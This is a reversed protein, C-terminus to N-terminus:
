IPRWAVYSYGEHYISGFELRRTELIEIRKKAELERLLTLFGDLYGRERHFRLALYDVLNNDDYLEALPEMNVCIAPRQDLLYQVFSDHRAGVQELACMTLVGAERELKLQPDPAFFDFHRGSINLGLKSRFMAVMEYSSKSWDLGCLKKGPFQNALAILNFGSGCGFEYVSQADGLFRAFLWSRCVRLFDLEFRPNRPIVYDRNLRIPQNPRIFDPVLREPDFGSETFKQLSDSWCSEWIGAREPGVMTLKGSDLHRLVGLIVRDREVGQLPEYHFDAAEVFKRCAAPLANGAIGFLSAFDEPSLNM